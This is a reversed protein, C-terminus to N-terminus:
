PLKSRLADRATRADEVARALFVNAHNGWNIRDYEAFMRACAELYALREPTIAPAPQTGRCEDRFASLINSATFRRNLHPNWLRQIRPQFMLWAVEGPWVDIENEDDDKFKWGGFKNPTASLPILHAMDNWRSFPVVVDWDRPSHNAPDAASGVVWAGFNACVSTVFRPISRALRETPTM